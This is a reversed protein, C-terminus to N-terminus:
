SPHDGYTHEDGPEPDRDHEREAVCHLCLAEWTDELGERESYSGGYSM